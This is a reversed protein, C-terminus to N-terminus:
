RGLVVYSTIDDDALSLLREKNARVVAEVLAVPCNGIRLLVVRPPHGLAACQLLFDRDKTVITFGAERAFAWVANDDAQGMGLDHVHRSAPFIDALRAALVPSLNEDFLLKM